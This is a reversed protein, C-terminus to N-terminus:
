DAFFIEVMHRSTRHYRNENHSRLRYSIVIPLSHVMGSCREEDDDTEQYLEKILKIIKQPIGAAELM